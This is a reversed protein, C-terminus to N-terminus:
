PGRWSSGAARYGEPQTAAARFEGMLKSWAWALLLVDAVPRALCCCFLLSPAVVVYLLTKALAQGAKRETLGLWLGVAGAACLDLTLTLASLAAMGGGYVTVLVWSGPGGSVSGALRFQVVLAVTEAMMIVIAPGLFLRRIALYQGRVIAEPKLPTVLLLELVGDRRADSM